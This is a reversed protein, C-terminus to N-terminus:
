PTLSCRVIRKLTRDTRVTIPSTTAVQASRVITWIARCTITHIRTDMKRASASFGAASHNM